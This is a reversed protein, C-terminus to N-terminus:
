IRSAIVNAVHYIYVNVFKAKAKSGKDKFKRVLITLIYLATCYFYLMRINKFKHLLFDIFKDVCLFQVEQNRNQEEAPM